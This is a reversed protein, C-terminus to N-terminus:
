WTPRSTDKPKGQEGQSMPLRRESELKFGDLLWGAQEPTLAIEKGEKTAGERQGPKQGRPFDEDEEEDGEAGPPMNPAPIRGKLQQLKENLEKGKEGMGTSAMQMQKLSDVLKAICRDVIEANETAAADKNSHMEVASKFDDSAREWRGLVARYTQLAREVAATAEKLNKRVGRGHMYADVMRSIDNGALAADASRIAETARQEASKGRSASAGASESKKLEELGQGFRVHGLNYLSPYQLEDRQSSLASEFFAEAERLKGARLLASGANYFERPTAPAPSTAGPQVTAVQASAPLATPTAAPDAAATAGAALAFILLACGGRILRKDDYTHMFREAMRVDNVCVNNLSWYLRM